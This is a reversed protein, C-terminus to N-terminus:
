QHGHGSHPNRGAPDAPPQTGSAAPAAPVAAAAQAEKAYARWGGIHAVNDNSERWPRVAEDHFGQYDDFASRSTPEVASQAAPTQPQALAGAAALSLLAGAAVRRISDHM